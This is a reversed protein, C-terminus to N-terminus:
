ATERTRWFGVVREATSPMLRMINMRVNEIDASSPIRTPPGAASCFGALARNGM